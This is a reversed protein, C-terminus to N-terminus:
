NDITSEMDLIGELINANEKANLYNVAEMLNNGLLIEGFKVPMNMSNGVGVKKLVGSRIWKVIRVKDKFNGDGIINCFRKADADVEKGISDRAVEPSMGSPNMGIMFLTDYIEDASMKDLAIYAKIKFERDSNAIRAENNVDFVVYEKKKSRMGEGINNATKPCSTLVSVKLESLTDSTDLKLGKEPIVIKFSDWYPSDVALEGNKLFLKEEFYAQKEPDLGTVKSGTKLSVGVRWHDSCDNFKQLIEGSTKHEAGWTLKDLRKIEVIAM